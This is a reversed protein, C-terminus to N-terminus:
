FFNFVWEFNIKNANINKLYKVTTEVWEWEFIDAAFLSLLTAVQQTTPNLEKWSLEFADLVGLQATRLGKQQPNMAKQHLRQQKLEQLMKNLTFHPPKKKIYSGVLEIGLPLYGLWKCLEQASYFEKNVKKEGILNKFLELAEEPLLVDLSIEEVNTDIDRLRTTMLVRFRQFSPLLESIDELDTVDDLIILVLGEPPKWHQWCWAVQQTLTLANEQFDKQPVQLGMQQVFQIIGAALNTGRVNLWCIGGPYDNEHKRAYQTALETKGVGGM